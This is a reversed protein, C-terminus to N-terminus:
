RSCTAPKASDQYGRHLTVARRRMSLSMPQRWNSRFWNHRRWRRIPARDLPFYVAVAPRARGSSAWM